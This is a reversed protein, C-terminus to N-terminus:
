LNFTSSEIISFEEPDSSPGNENLNKALYGSFIAAAYSTGFLKEKTTNKLVDKFKGEKDGNVKCNVIRPSSSTGHCDSNDSVVLFPVTDSNLMAPFLDIDEVKQNENGSTTVFQVGDSILKELYYEFIFPRCQPKFAWSANIIKVKDKKSKCKSNYAIIYEFARYIDELNHLGEHNATKLSMIRVKNKSIKAILKTIRTGHKTYGDNDFPENPFIGYPGEDYFNRGIVKGEPNYRTKNLSSSYPDNYFHLPALKKNKIRGKFAALDIGTDLIAIVPYSNTNQIKDNIASAFENNRAANIEKKTLLRFGDLIYEVKKYATSIPKQVKPGAPDTNNFAYIPEIRCITYKGDIIFYYITNCFQLKQIFNSNTKRLNSNILPKINILGTLDDNMNLELFEFKDKIKSIKDKLTNLEKESIGEELHVLFQNDIKSNKM